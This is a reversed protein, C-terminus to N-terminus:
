LIKVFDPKQKLIVTAFGEGFIFIFAIANLIATRWQSWNVPGNRRGAGKVLARKMIENKATM